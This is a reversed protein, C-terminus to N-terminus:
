GKAHAAFVVDVFCGITTTKKASQEQKRGHVKQETPHSLLLVQQQNMCASVPEGVANLDLHDKWRPASPVVDPFEGSLPLCQCCQVTETASAVLGQKETSDFKYVRSPSPQRGITSWFNAALLCNRQPENYRNPWISAIQAIRTLNQKERIITTNRQVKYM